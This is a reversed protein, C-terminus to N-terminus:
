LAQRLFFGRFNQILIHIGAEAPIVGPRILVKDHSLLNRMYLISGEPIVTPAILVKDYQLVNRVHLFRADNGRLRSDM